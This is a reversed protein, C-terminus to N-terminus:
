KESIVASPNTTLIKKFLWKDFQDNSVPNELFYISWEKYIKMAIEYESQEVKIEEKQVEKQETQSYWCHMCVKAEKAIEWSCNPCLKKTEFQEKFKEESM